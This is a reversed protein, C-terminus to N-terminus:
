KKEGIEFAAIKQGEKLRVIAKKWASKVKEIRRAGSRRSRGKVITTAIGVVDVKFRDSVLQKIAHKGYEKEVRFTFKGKEADAISKETIIPTLTATM